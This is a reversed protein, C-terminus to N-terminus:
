EENDESYLLRDYADLSKPRIAQASSSAAYVDDPLAFMAPLEQQFAQQVSGNKDKPWKREAEENNCWARAQENLDDIDSFDRAAFFSSRVYRIAREVKGKSTPRAVPVPHPAFRYHGALKLLESNFRIASDVREIVATKLNDYLIRRPVAGFYECIGIRHALSGHTRM